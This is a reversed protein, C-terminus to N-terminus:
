ITENKKNYEKLNRLAIWGALHEINKM